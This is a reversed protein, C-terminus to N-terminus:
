INILAILHIRVKPNLTELYATDMLNIINEDRSINM